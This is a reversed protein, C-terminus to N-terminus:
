YIQTAAYFILESHIREAATTITCTHTVKATTNTYSKWGPASLRPAFCKLCVLRAQSGIFVVVHIEEKRVGYKRKM